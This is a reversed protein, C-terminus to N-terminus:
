ISQMKNSMMEFIEIAFRMNRPVGKQTINKVSGETNGTMDAVDSYSLQLTDLMTKFRLLWDKETAEITTEIKM